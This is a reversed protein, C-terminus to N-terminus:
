IFLGKLTKMIRYKLTDNKRLYEQIRLLVPGDNELKVPFKAICFSEDIHDKESRGRCHTGSFDFGSNSILTKRPFLVLGSNLFVSLYWQVGWSDVDGSLQQELLEFYRYSGSLNFLGRLNPDNRLVQIGKMETDLLSWSKRWTAWGWTSVIPLFLADDKINTEIPFMYGSIQMVQEENEYRDLADNMFSLLYPATILDDELVIIRGYENVIDTVGTIVSRALGLNSEREIIKVSNFGDINKLYQRVEDVKQEAGEDKAADSFVILDSQAALENARLAEVTRRTHGPRNYTFLVVPATKM